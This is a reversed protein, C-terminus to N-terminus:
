KLGGTIWTTYEPTHKVVITPLVVIKKKKM